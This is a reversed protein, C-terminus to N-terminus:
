SLKLTVAIMIGVTGAKVSGLFKSLLTPKRLLPMIKVLLGVLFFSPLFMGLSARLAGSIGELQYGVFIATTLIPGQTFQGMAVADLLQNETLWGLREILEADMYAILVYGSGFLVLAIKLFAFFISSNSIAVTVPKMFLLVPAIIGIKQHKNTLGFWFMGFVGSGIILVFENLGLLTLLLVLIGISTLQWIKFAMKGLKYTAYLIIGIVAPVIDYFFSAIAPIEESKGYIIALLLTFFV